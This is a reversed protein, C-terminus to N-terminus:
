QGNNTISKNCKSIISLKKNSYLAVIKDPHKRAYERIIQPSNDQSCDDTIIIQYIFNVQQMLISDLAQGIYQGNNYSPM